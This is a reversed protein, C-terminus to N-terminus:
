VLIVYTQIFFLRTTHEALFYVCTNVRRSANSWDVKNTSQDHFGM